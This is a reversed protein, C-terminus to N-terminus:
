ASEKTILACIFFNCNGKIEENVTLSYLGFYEEEGNREEMLSAQKFISIFSLCQNGAEHHKQALNHHNAAEQHHM